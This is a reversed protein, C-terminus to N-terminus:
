KKGRPKKLKDPKWPFPDGNTIIFGAASPHGGGGYRAAIKSVDVSGDSRLSVYTRTRGRTWVIGFSKKIEALRAGVESRFVYPAGVELVHYKNFVVPRAVSVIEGIVFQRYAHIAKGQEFIIASTSRKKLKKEFLNWSAFAYPITDLVLTVFRTNKISFKWLDEDEIYRLLKPPTKKSFFYNWALMSGSHKCNFVCRARHSLWLSASQHHDIVVVSKHHKELDALIHQPYPFDICYIEKGTELEPPPSQHDVPIYVAKDKFKQWAVWAGAFGDRCFNHYLVVIRKNSISTNM